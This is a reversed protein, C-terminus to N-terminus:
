LTEKYEKLSRGMIKRFCRSFYKPDSFGCKYAIEAVSADPQREVLMAAYKIRLTQIYNNPTYGLNKKCKIYLLSNSMNMHRAFDSVSLDSNAVNDMVFEKAKDAFSMEDPEGEVDEEIETKSNVLETVRNELYDLKADTEKRHEDMESKLRMIYRYTKYIGILALVLLMGYLMWSYWMEHFAAKRCITIVRENDVWIGDSNTSAIHLTYTGIPFNTYEIFNEKTYHWGDDIGELRYKYVIDENRNYDLAAFEIRVNREGPQLTINDPGNLAINPVYSSKEISRPDFMLFGQTTGMVINGDPLCLPRVESFITVDDSFGKEYNVVNQKHMDSIETLAFKGVGWIHQRGDVALTLYVDTALGERSTFSRFRISDSLLNDSLIKSIGGGCTTVYIQGDAACVVDTINNAGISSADKNRRVNRYFRMREPRLGLDCTYLGKDTGVVLVSKDKCVDMGHIYLLNDPSHRLLNNCNIFTRSGDKKENVLNLGGGLTGIWIRRYRDETISYVADSSISYVDKESHSYRTVKYNGNKPELLFLGDPKTGIWIRGRSDEFFVYVNHGFLVRKGSLAGNRGLYQPTMCGNNYIRVSGNKDAVWLRGSRDYLLGRIIEEKAAANDKHSRVKDKVFMVRELGRTSTIWIGGQRDVLRIKARYGQYEEVLRLKDYYAKFRSESHWRGEITDRTEEFKETDRRFRFYKKNSYCLIDHNKDEGIYNIRNVFLPSDDGPYVKYTKFAHGDYRVLGDHTSFWIYGVSDQLACSVDADMLGDSSDYRIIHVDHGIGEAMIRCFLMVLVIISLRRM